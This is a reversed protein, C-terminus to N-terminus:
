AGGPWTPRQEPHSTGTPSSRVQGGAETDGPRVVAAWNGEIGDGSGIGLEDPSAERRDDHERGPELHDDGLAVEGVSAERDEVNGEASTQFQGSFTSVSTIGGPRSRTPTWKKRANWFQTPPSLGSGNAM